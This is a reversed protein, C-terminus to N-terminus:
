TCAHPANLKSRTLIQSVLPFRQVTYHRRERVISRSKLQFSRALKMANPREGFQATRKEIRPLDRRSKLCERAVRISIPMEALSLRALDHLYEEAFETVLRELAVGIAAIALDGPLQEGKKYQATQQSVFEQIVSQTIEGHRIATRINRVAPLRALRSRMAAPPLIFGAADTFEDTLLYDLKDSL